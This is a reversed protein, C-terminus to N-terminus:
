RSRAARVRVPALRARVPPAPCEFEDVACGAAIDSSVTNWALDFINSVALRYELPASYVLLNAPTWLKASSLVTSQWKDRVVAPVDRAPVGNLLSAMPLDYFAFYFPSFCFQELSMQAFVRALGDDLGSTSADAWDFYEVWMAGGIVGKFAYKLGRVPDYADIEPDRSQAIGDGIAAVVANTVSKTALPHTFLLQEYANAFATLTSASPVTRMSHRRPLPALSTLPPAFGQVVEACGHVIAFVLLGGLRM